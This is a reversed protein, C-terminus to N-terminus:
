GGLHLGVIELSQLRSRLLVGIVAIICPHRLNMVNEIIREIDGRDVCRRLNISKVEILRGDDREQCIQTWVLESQNLPPREILGCFPFLCDSLCPLGSGFRSIRRFDIIMGTRRLRQWRGYEPCSDLCDISIQVSDQAAECAIFLVSSPAIVSVHLQGFADRAIHKLLSDPEFLISSLSQCGSFCSSGLIEVNRPIIISRLSSDRFADSEIQILRSNSEFSISSRSYCCRFCSSGLIEINGIVFTENGTEISVCQSKIEIFASGDIFQVNGPIEISGIPSFSFANSEIRIL